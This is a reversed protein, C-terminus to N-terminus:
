SEVEKAEEDNSEVVVVVMRSVAVLRADITRNCSVARVKGDGVEAEDAWVDARM